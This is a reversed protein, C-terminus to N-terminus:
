RLTRSYKMSPDDPQYISFRMLSDRVDEPSRIMWLSGGEVFRALVDTAKVYVVDEQNAYHVSFVTYIPLSLFWNFFSEAISIPPKCIEVIELTGYVGKTYVSDSIIRSQRVAEAYDWVKPSDAGYVETKNGTRDIVVFNSTM